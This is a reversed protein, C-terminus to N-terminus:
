ILNFECVCYYWFKIVRILFSLLLVGYLSILNTAMVNTEQGIGMIHLERKSWFDILFTHLPRWPQCLPYLKSKCGKKTTKLGFHIGFQVIDGTIQYRNTVMTLDDGPLYQNNVLDRIVDVFQLEKQKFFIVM